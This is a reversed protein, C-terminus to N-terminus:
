KRVLCIPRPAKGHPHGETMAQHQRLTAMAEGVGPTGLVIVITSKGGQGSVNILRSWAEGDAVGNTM